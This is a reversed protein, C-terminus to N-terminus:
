IQDDKGLTPAAYEMAPHKLCDECTVADRYITRSHSTTGCVPVEDEPKTSWARILHVIEKIERKTDSVPIRRPSLYIM